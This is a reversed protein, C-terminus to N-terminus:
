LLDNVMKKVDERKVTEHKQPVGKDDDVVLNSALPLAEVAALVKEKISGGTKAAKEDKGTKKKDAM